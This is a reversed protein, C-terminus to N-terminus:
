TKNSSVVPKTNPPNSNNIQKVYSQSSSQKVETTPPKVLMDLGSKSSCTSRLKIGAEVSM